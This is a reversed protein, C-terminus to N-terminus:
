ILPNRQLIDQKVFAVEQNSLVRSYMVSETWYQNGRLSALNSYFRNLYIDTNGEYSITATAFYVEPNDDVQLYTGPNAHRMTLLYRQGIQPIIESSYYAATGNGQLSFGIQQVTDTGPGITVEQDTAFVSEPNGEVSVLSGQPIVTGQAGFALGAITSPNGPLRRIGTIAVVHDLNIGSATDPYQSNYVRQGLEWIRAKRDSFIGVIQGLLEDPLLNIANGLKSRLSNETEQKIDEFRKLAFGQPTVGYM